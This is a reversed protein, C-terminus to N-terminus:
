PNEMDPYSLEMKQSSMSEMVKLIFQPMFVGFLCGLIFGFTFLFPVFIVPKKKLFLSILIFFFFHFWVSTGGCLLQDRTFWAHDLGAILTVEM